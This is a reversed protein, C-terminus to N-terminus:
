LLIENKKESTVIINQLSLLKEICSNIENKTYVRQLCGNETDIM